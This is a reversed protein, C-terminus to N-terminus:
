GSGKVSIVSKVGGTRQTPRLNLSALGPSHTGPPRRCVCASVVCGQARSRSNAAQYVFVCVWFVDSDHVTGDGEARRRGKGWRTEAGHM